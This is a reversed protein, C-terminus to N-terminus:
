EERGEEEEERESRGITEPPGRMGGKEECVKKHEGEERAERGRVEEETPGTKIDETQEKGAADSEVMSAGGRGEEGDVAEEKTDRAGTRAGTM